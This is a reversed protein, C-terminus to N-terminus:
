DHSEAATDSDAETQTTNPATLECIVLADSVPRGDAYPVNIAGSEAQMVSSQGGDLNYASTLGLDECLQSLDEMTLGRSESSRGDVAMFVYHGPEYYGLVSRPNKPTVASRFKTKSRGEEDLLAPGFVWSQYVDMGAFTAKTLRRYRYTLLEGDTLLLGLDLDRSIRDYYLVGNRVIPGRKHLSYFDGNIAVIANETSNFITEMTQSRGRYKGSSFANAFCGIDQIYIDALHYVAEKYYGESITVSVNESKYNGNGDSLVGSYSFHDFLSEDCLGSSVREGFAELDVIGGCAYVLAARADVDNIEGNQTFDCDPREETTLAGTELVRLMAAADAANLAGDGNLDGSTPVFIAQAKTTSWLILALIAISLLTIKQKRM